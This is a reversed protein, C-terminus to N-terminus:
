KSEERTPYIHYNSIDLISSWDHNVYRLNNQGHQMLSYFDGEIALPPYVLSQRFVIPMFHDTILVPNRDSYFHGDDIRKSIQSRFITTNKQHIVEAVERAKEITFLTMQNGWFISEYGINRSKWLDYHIPGQNPFQNLSKFDIDTISPLYGLSVFDVHNSIISLAKTAEILKNVFGFKLFCVDDEMTVLYKKESCNKVFWNIASAFSRTCCIQADVEFHGLKEHKEIIYDTSDVPTFGKLYHVDLLINLDELQKKIWNLRDESIYTVVIQISKSIKLIEDNSM